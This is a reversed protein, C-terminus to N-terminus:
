KIDKIKLKKIAKQLGEVPTAMNAWSSVYESFPEDFGRRKFSQIAVVTEVGDVLTIMPGGSNGNKVACDHPLGKYFPNREHGFKCSPDFSLNNFDRDHPFGFLQVKLNRLHSFPLHLVNLGKVDRCIALKLMVWDELGADVEDNLYPRGFSVPFAKILDSNKDFGFYVSDKMSMKENTNQVLHYNTAIHCSDVHFATGVISSWENRLHISGINPRLSRSISIRDDSYFTNAPSRLRSACGLVNLLCLLTLLKTM